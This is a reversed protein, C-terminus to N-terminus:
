VLVTPTSQNLKVKLFGSILIEKCIRAIKTWKVEVPACYYRNQICGLPEGMLFLLVIQMFEMAEVFDSKLLPLFATLWYCLIARVMQEDSPSNVTVGFSLSM